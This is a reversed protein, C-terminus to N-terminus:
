SSTRWTFKWGDLVAVDDTGDPCWSLGGIASVGCGYCDGTVEICVQSGSSASLISITERYEADHLRAALQVLKWALWKRIKM